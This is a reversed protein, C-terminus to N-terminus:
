KPAAPKAGAAPKAQAQEQMATEYRVKAVNAARQSEALYEAAEDALTNASSEAAKAKARLDDADFQDFVQQAGVEIRLEAGVRVEPPAHCFQRQEFLLGRAFQRRSYVLRIDLLRGRLM